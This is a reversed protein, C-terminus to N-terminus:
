VKLLHPSIMEVKMIINACFMFVYFKMLFMWKYHLSCLIHISSINITWKLNIFLILLFFFFFCAAISVYWIILNHFRCWWIEVLFVCVCSKNTLTLYWYTLLVLQNLPASIWIQFDALINTKVHFSYTSSAVNFCRKRELYACTFYTFRKTIFMLFCYFINFILRSKSFNVFM